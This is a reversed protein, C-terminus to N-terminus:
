RMFCSVIALVVVLVALVFMKTEDSVVGIAETAEQVVAEEAERGSVMRLCTTGDDLRVVCVAHGLAVATALQILLTEDAAVGCIETGKGNDFIVYLVNTRSIWIRVIARGSIIEVIRPM